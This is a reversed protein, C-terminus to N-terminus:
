LYKHFSFPYLKQIKINFNNKKQFDWEGSSNLISVEDFNKSKNFKAISKASRIVSNITAINTLFPCWYYIKM